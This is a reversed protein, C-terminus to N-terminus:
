PAYPLHRYFRQSSPPGGKNIKLKHERPCGQCLFIITVRMRQTRAYHPTRRGPQPSSRTVSVCEYEAIHRRILAYPAALSSVYRLPMIMCRM